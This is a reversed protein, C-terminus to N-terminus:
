TFGDLNKHLTATFFNTKQCLYSLLSPFLNALIIVLLPRQDLRHLCYDEPFCLPKRTLKSVSLRPLYSYRAANPLRGPLPPSRLGPNPKVHTYLPAEAGHKYSPSNSGPESRVSAARRLCALRAALGKPARSRRVPSYRTSLRGGPPPYGASVCPLVAHSPSEQHPRRSLGQPAAPPHTRTGNALRRPSPGGHRHHTAPRLPHVAM